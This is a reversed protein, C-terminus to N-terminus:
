KLHVTVTDKRDYKIGRKCCKCIFNGDVVIFDDLCKELSRDLKNEIKEFPM